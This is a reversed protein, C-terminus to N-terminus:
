KVISSRLKNDNVAKKLQESVLWYLCMKLLCSASDLNLTNVSPMSMLMTTMMTIMKLVFSLVIIMMMRLMMMVRLSLPLMLMVVVVVCEVM